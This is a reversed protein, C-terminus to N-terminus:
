LFIEFITSFFRTGFKMVAHSSKFLRSVSKNLVVGHKSLGVAFMIFVMMCMCLGVIPKIVGVIPKILAFKYKNLGNNVVILLFCWQWLFTGGSPLVLVCWCVTTKRSWKSKAAKAPFVTPLTKRL